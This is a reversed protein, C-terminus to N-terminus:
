AQRACQRAATVADPRSSDTIAADSPSDSVRYRGGLSAYHTGHELQEGQEGRSGRKGKRRHDGRLPVSGNDGYQFESIGRDALVSAVVISKALADRIQQDGVHRGVLLNPEDIPIADLGN